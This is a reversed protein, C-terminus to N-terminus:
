TGASTARRIFVDGSFRCRWIKKSSSQHAAFPGSPFVFRTHIVSRHFVASILYAFSPVLRPLGDDAVLPQVALPAAVAGLRPCLVHGGRVASRRRHHTASTHTESQGVYRLLVARYRGDLVETELDM